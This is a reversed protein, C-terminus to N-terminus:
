FTNATGKAQTEEEVVIVIIRLNQRKITELIEQINQAQIKLISIIKNSLSIYKEERTKL